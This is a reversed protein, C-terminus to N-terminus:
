IDLTFLTYYPIKNSSEGLQYHLDPHVPVIRRGEVNTFIESQKSRQNYIILKKTDCNLYCTFIDGVSISTISAPQTPHDSRMFRTLQRRRTALYWWSCRRTEVECFYNLGDAPTVCRVGVELTKTYDYRKLKQKWCHLDRNGEDQNTSSTLLSMQDARTVKPKVTWTLPSSCVSEGEVTLSLTCVGSTDPKYSFSYSGDELTNVPLM